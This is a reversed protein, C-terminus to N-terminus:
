TFVHTQKTALFQLAGLAGLAAGLRLAGSGSVPDSAAPRDPLGLPCALGFSLFFRVALPLYNALVKHPEFLM